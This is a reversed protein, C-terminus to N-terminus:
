TSINWAVGKDGWQVSQLMTVVFVKDLDKDDKTIVLDSPNLIGGDTNLVPIECFYGSGM